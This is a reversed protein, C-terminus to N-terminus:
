PISDLIKRLKNNTNTFDYDLTRKRIKTLTFLYNLNQEIDRDILKLTDKNFQIDTLTTDAGFISFIKIMNYTEEKGNHIINVANKIIEMFIDIEQIEKLNKFYIGEYDKELYQLIFINNKIYNIFKYNKINQFVFNLIQYNLQNIFLYKLHFDKNLLKFSYNKIILNNDLNPVQNIIKKDLAYKIINLSHFKMKSEFKLKLEHTLLNVHNIKELSILIDTNDINLIYNILDFSLDSIIYKKLNLYFEDKTNYFHCKWLKLVTNDIDCMSLFDYISEKEADNIDLNFSFPLILDSVYKFHKLAVPNCFIILNDHHKQEKLFDCIEIFKKNVQFKYKENIIIDM